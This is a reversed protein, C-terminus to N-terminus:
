AATLPARGLNVDRRSLERRVHRLARWICFDIALMLAFTQPELRPLGPWDRFLLAAGATAQLAVVLMAVRLVAAAVRAAAGAAGRFTQAQRRVLTSQFMAYDRLREQMVDAQGGARIARGIARASVASTRARRDADALYRATLRRSDLAPHLAVVSADLTSIARHLRLFAWEMTCRFGLLVRMVALILSDLSREGYPLERVLTRSTWGRLARMLRERVLTTDIPPLRACLMLALDAAKSHQQSVVARTYLRFKRLYGADTFNTAGFDILAVRSGRLLVINGPHMDGHFLNDELMQRELSFVLRRAVRRPDIDNAALWRRLREPDERAVRIYDAMFVSPLLETVLVRPTSYADFVRPVHVGHRRLTRRMRTTSSAEYGFDLEEKVIQRLEHEGLDWHMHRRVRVLKLLRALRRIVALDRDFLEASQPKQVKVAVWVQERRLRARHVQGISAAAMPTAEWRDFHTDVPAQLEHEVIRRALDGDFGLAQSQLNALERCIEEPLLDIRLSALQGAKIWLGGMRELTLRLRRGYSAPEFRGILLRGVLVVSLMTLHGLVSWTRWVPPPGVAVIPVPARDEPEVLPTPIWSPKLV